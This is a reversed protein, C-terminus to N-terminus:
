EGEVEGGEHLEGKRSAVVVGKLGFVPSL